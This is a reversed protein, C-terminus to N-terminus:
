CTNRMLLDNDSIGAIFENRYKVPAFIDFVEDCSRGRHPLRQHLSEEHFVLNDYRLGTYPNGYKWIM